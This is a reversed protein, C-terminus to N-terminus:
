KKADKNEDAASDKNESAKKETEEAESDKKATEEAESAKKETEEAESAKKEADEAKSAKKETDEAESDKKETEEAETEEAEEAELEITIAAEASNVVLTGSYATYGDAEAKVKYAGYKIEMAQSCDLEAGNLTVQASEPVVTINLMCYGPGDGKLTDLDITLEEFRNVTIERSGGYGDHAVSLTYTGEPIVLSMDATIEQAVISGITIMGGEFDETSRLSVTGHGQVVSVTLIKKDVGRFCLIDKQNLESMSIIGSDSFVKLSEDYYYKSGMITIMEKGSEIAFNSVDDFIFADEAVKIETLVNKKTHTIEVLEGIQLQSITISDGYRNKIYTGGNYEFEEQRGTETSEVFVCKTDANSYLLIYLQSDETAIDEQEEEQQEKESIGESVTKGM